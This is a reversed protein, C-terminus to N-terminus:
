RFRCGTAPPPGCEDREADTRGRGATAAPESGPVPRLWGRVADEPPVAAPGPAPLNLVPLNLVPLGPHGPAAAAPPQPGQIANRAPPTNTLMTAVALLLCVGALEVLVTRRLGAVGDGLRRRVYRRSRSAVAVIIILGGAKVMVLRGYSTGTLAGLSAVERVALYGGTLVLTIVSALALTSFRTIAVRLDAVDEARIRATETTTAVATEAMLGRAGSTLTVAAGGGPPLAAAPGSGRPTMVPPRLLCVGLTFLGGAWLGMAAVHATAVPVAVTALSGSAAHSTASWTAALGVALIAVAAMSWGRPRAAAARRMAQDGFVAFLALLGIRVMLVHGLHTSVTTGLLDRDLLHTPGLGATYPGYLLLQALTAGLLVLWGAAAPWMARSGTAPGPPLCALRVAACGALLAFGAFALWTTVELAVNTSQPTGTAAAPGPAVRTPAGVSFTLGGATLHGDDSAVTRWDLVYTGRAQDPRLDATLTNGQGGARRLPQESVRRGDPAIVTITSLGIEVNETYVLVVRHPETDLRAENAPSSSALDAHALAPGASVVLALAAGAGVGAIRRLWRASLRTGRGTVQGRTDKLRM